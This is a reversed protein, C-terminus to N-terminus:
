SPLHLIFTRQPFLFFSSYGLMIFTFSYSSLHDL